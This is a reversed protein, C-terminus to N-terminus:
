RKDKQADSDPGPGPGSGGPGGASGADGSGCTKMTERNLCLVALMTAAAEAELEHWGEPGPLAQALAATDHEFREIAAPPLRAGLLRAWGLMAGLDLIAGPGPADGVQGLVPRLAPPADAPLDTELAATGVPKGTASRVALLVRGRAIEAVAVGPHALVDDFMRGWACVAAVSDLLAFTQGGHAPLAPLPGAPALLARLMADAAQRQAPPLAADRAQLQARFVLDCAKHDSLEAAERWLAPLLGCDVQDRRAAETAARMLVGRAELARLAKRDDFARGGALTQALLRQELGHGEAQAASVADRVAAVLRELAQWRPALTPWRAPAACELAQLTIRLAGPQELSRMSLLAKREAMLFGAVAEQCGLAAALAAAMPAQAILADRLEQWAAPRQRLEGVVAPHQMTALVAHRAQQAAKDDAALVWDLAQLPWDMVAECRRLAMPVARMVAARLEIELAGDIRLTALVPEGAVGRPLACPTGWWDPKIVDRLTAEPRAIFSRWLTQEDPVPAAAPFAVSGAQLGGAADLVLAGLRRVAGPATRQERPLLLWEDSRGEDPRFRRALVEPATPTHPPNMTIHM